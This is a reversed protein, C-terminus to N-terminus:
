QVLVKKYFDRNGDSLKLLLIGAGVNVQIDISSKRDSNNYVAIKKGVLTLLEIREIKDTNQLTFFGNVVPIPYIKIANEPEDDIATVPNSDIDLLDIMRLAYREGFIIYTASNFHSNDVGALGATSIIHANPIVDPLKNVEVNHSSCCAGPGALLEGALFPIDDLELDNKLNDVVQKVKNKWSQDNTNTEGQHFLIGKIVGDEQAMKAVAVLRGYPNGEYQTIIDKMWSPATTVYSAYNVKDFLAIDCGGIAVPVIGVKIQPPLNAVMTRGFYDAIGLGTYCRVVPPTATSWQGLTFSRTTTSTCNVAGMVRFRSDLGTIDQSQIAGAGEMNSQGFLLYIHLNPDQANLVSHTIM